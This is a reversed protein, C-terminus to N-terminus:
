SGLDLCHSKSHKRFMAANADDDKKTFSLPDKSILVVQLESDQTLVVDTFRFDERWVPQASRAQSMSRVFDFLYDIHVCTLQCHFTETSTCVLVWRFRDRSVSDPILYLIAYVKAIANGLPGVFKFNQEKFPLAKATLLSVRLQSGNVRGSDLAAQATKSSGEDPM